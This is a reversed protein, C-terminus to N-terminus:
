RTANTVADMVWIDGDYEQWIVYLYRADAFTTDSTAVGGPITPYSPWEAEGGVSGLTRSERVRSRGLHTRIM